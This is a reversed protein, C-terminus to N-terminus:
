KLEDTSTYFLPTVAVKHIDEYGVAVLAHEARRLPHFEIGEVHFYGSFWSKEFIIELDLISKDNNCTFQYLEAVLWGDERKNALHVISVQTEGNLKYWIPFYPLEM